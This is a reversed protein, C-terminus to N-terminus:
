QAIEAEPGEIQEFLQEVADFLPELATIIEHFTVVAPMAAIRATQWTEFTLKTTLYLAKMTSVRAKFDGIKTTVTPRSEALLCKNLFAKTKNLKKQNEPIDLLWQLTDLKKLVSKLNEDFTKLSPIAQVQESAIMESALWNSLYEYEGKLEALHEKKVASLRIRSINHDLTVLAETKLPLDERVMHQQEITLGFLDANIVLDDISNIAGGGGTYSDDMQFQFHFKANSKATDIQIKYYVGNHFGLAMTPTQRDINAIFEDKTLVEVKAYFPVQGKSIGDTGPKVLIEKDAVALDVATAKDAPSSTTKAVEAQAKTETSVDLYHAQNFIGAVIGIRKGQHKDMNEQTYSKEQKFFGSSLTQVGIPQNQADVPKHAYKGASVNLGQSEFSLYPSNPADDVIHEVPSATGNPQDVTFISADDKARNAINNVSMGRFILKDTLDERHPRMTAEDTAKKTGMVTPAYSKIKDKTIQDFLYNQYATRDVDEEGSKTRYADDRRQVRNQKKVYKFLQFTTTYHTTPTQPQLPLSPRLPHGIHLAKAGMVDAEKELNEDDNIGIKGKMQLTPQVRGQKQQVVHWAEHALHREQGSAIHINTGQAYAHANLQAPKNSNYHVKVDDMAYGSLQEIGTKLTNPLGTRNAKQLIPSEQQAAYTDAMDQFRGVQQQKPSKNAHSQLTKLQATQPRLDRFEFQSKQMRQDKTKTGTSLTQHDENKDAQLHM